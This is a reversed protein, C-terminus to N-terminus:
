STRGFCVLCIDDQQTRKGVFQNVDAFINHVTDAPCTATAIQSRLRPEGYSEEACNTAETIGDTYLTLTEGPSVTLKDLVYEFDEVAGLPPGFRSRGPENLRGDGSRLLPPMHGACAIQLEHNEPDLMAILLTIFREDVGQRWMNRNLANLIEDPEYVTSVLLRVEASLRSMSLASAIGHGAVDAVIVAMRGDPTPVYDYYDGGIIEAPKYWESFEYGEYKPRDTPLLGRQVEAALELDRELTRRKLENEHLHASTIAIAAQSAVGTLLELEEQQFTHNWDNTDVQVVGFADGNDDILPACMISRIELNSISESQQFRPDHYADSSLIANKTRLAREIITRSIRHQDLSDTTSKTWMPVLHGTEDELIVCGLGAQPIMKFLCDLIKPLLKELSLFQGLSQTIELLAGLKAHATSAFRSMDMEHPIEITVHVPSEQPSDVAVVSTQTDSDTDRNPPLEVLATDRFSFEVRSLRVKDGDTLRCRGQIVVNNLSTG